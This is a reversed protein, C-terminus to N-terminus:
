EVSLQADEIIVAYHYGSGINKDLTLLGKILVTDGVKVYQMTTVVLDNTGNNAISGDQVHLWNKGLIKDSFKVVLARIEIIKNNFKERSDYLSAINLGSGAMKVNIKKTENKTSKVSQTSQTATRIIHDVFFLEEFTRNLADSKFDYMPLGKPVKIEDGLKLDLAPLAIWVRASSNVEVQVYSYNGAKETQVVKGSFMYPEKELSSESASVSTSVISILLFSSLVMLMKFLPNVNNRDSM